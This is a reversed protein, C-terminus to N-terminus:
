PGSIIEYKHVFKLVEMSIKEQTRENCTKKKKFLNLWIGEHIWNCM